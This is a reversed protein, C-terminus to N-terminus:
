RHAKDWERALRRAEDIQESSMKAAVLGRNKISRSRRNEDIARNAGLDYWKHAEVYDPSVGLGKDYAVGLDNLAGIHGQEAALRYWKLAQTHDRSTGEGSRYMHALSFQANMHGQEAALRYWTLAEAHDEITGEGNDCMIGMNYQAAADGAEALSRFRQLAATHDGRGYAAAADDWPNAHAAIVCLCLVTATLRRNICRTRSAGLSVAALLTGFTERCQGMARAYRSVVFPYM